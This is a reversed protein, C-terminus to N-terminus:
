SQLQHYVQFYQYFFEPTRLLVTYPLEYIVTVLFWYYGYFDIHKECICSFDNIVKISIKKVQIRGSTFTCKKLPMFRLIEIILFLFDCHLIGTKSLLSSYSIILFINEILTLKSSDTKYINIFPM